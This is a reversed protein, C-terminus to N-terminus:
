RTRATRAEVLVIQTADKSATMEGIVKRTSLDILTVRGKGSWSNSTLAAAYREDSTVQLDEYALALKESERGSVPDIFTVGRYEGLIEGGALFRFRGRFVGLLKGTEVNVIATKGTEPDHAYVWRGDLKVAPDTTAQIRREAM